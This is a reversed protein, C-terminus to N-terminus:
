PRQLHVYPGLPPSGPDGPHAWRIWQTRFLLFAPPSLTLSSSTVTSAFPLSVVPSPSLGGSSVKFIPSPFDLILFARSASRATCHSRGRLRWVSPWGASVQKGGRSVWRLSGVELVVFPKCQKQAVVDPVNAVAATPCQCRRQQGSCRAKFRPLKVQPSRLPPLSTLGELSGHERGSLTCLLLPRM